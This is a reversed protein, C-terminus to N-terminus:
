TLVDKPMSPPVSSAEIHSLVVAVLITVDGDILVLEFLILLIFHLLGCFSEPLLAELGEASRPTTFDDLLEVEKSELGQSFGLTLVLHQIRHVLSHVMCKEVM